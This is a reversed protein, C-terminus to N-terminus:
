HCSVPIFLLYFITIYLLINLIITRKIGFYFMSLTFSFKLIDCNENVSVNGDGFFIVNINTKTNLHIDYSFLMCWSAVIFIYIAYILKSENPVKKLVSAEITKRCYNKCLIQFYISKLHITQLKSRKIKSIINRNKLFM